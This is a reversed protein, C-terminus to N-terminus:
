KAIQMLEVNDAAGGFRPAGARIADAVYSPALHGYHKEVMRTDAHGLNRSVVMLPVGAMVSLSAWTHRLGHFGIVPTIRGNACADAMPRLQHSAAWPEGNSKVFMRETGPRGAVHRAFFAAGDDTLVIHRPKGSKSTRIAVTGSDPNFDRVELACLEGYRAGTELGAQVMARFGPEAANILRKAEAITLYRVRAADVNEFPEVRRWALDSSIGGGRWARNLAGKLITLTRNASSRRKRKTEDDIAMEGYRQENGVKTRIRPAAKAMDALWKELQKTTLAEVEIDGLTPLIHAGARKRADVGTKRNADLFDVYANVADRVTLPGTKGAASHARQVMRSRALDQAQRFSLVAVGDPDSFDDAVALTEVEYDKDGIYHRAVWKGAGKLPRRYGLHLGPELTRYYPKGRPLLRQRATRTDLNADRVSRAM